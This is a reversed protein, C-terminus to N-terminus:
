KEAMEVKSCDLTYDAGCERAIRLRKQYFGAAIVPFAGSLKVWQLVLQWVIGSGIVLVAEGLQINARRVGYLAVAALTTFTAQKFSM